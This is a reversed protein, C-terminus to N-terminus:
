ESSADVQFQVKETKQKGLIKEIALNARKVAIRKKYNVWMQGFLQNMLKDIWLKYSFYSLGSGWNKFGTALKRYTVAFGGEQYVIYHWYGSPMFLSDGHQLTIDYGKVFKLGPFKDFNPHGFDAISYTNLPTKYLLDNNEQSFLFFRKTGVFQTHLVNSMDIDFHTRVETSKGGFFMFCFKDLVGKFLKPCPYESKLDPCHKFGNFLFLRKTAPENREIENVFDSFRMSLDGKTYASNRIFTNDYVDVNVDGLREKMYTLNWKKEAITGRLLGKVIVPRQKIFYNKRFNDEESADIIDIKLSLDM